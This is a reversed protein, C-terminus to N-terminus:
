RRTFIRYASPSEPQHWWRVQRDTQWEGDVRYNRLLFDKLEPWQDVRDFSYHQELCFQNTLVITQPRASEMADLLAGRYRKQEDASGQYAYCDYLYGTSAVLHLDLLTNICGGVTDLCQVSGQQVKRSVLDRGLANEFPATRTYSRITRAYMPPLAAGMLVILVCAVVAVWAEGALGQAILRAVLILGLVLFPYRQYPFGKGQMVFSLLGCATAFLLLKTEVDHVRLGFALLLALGFVAPVPAFAHGLLAGLTQHALRSHAADVSRLVAIFAEVAAYQHLWLLVLVGPLLLAGVSAAMMGARLKLRQPRLRHLLLPMAALPLLTPKITLTAGILLEFVLFGAARWKAPVRLLTTLALVVLAAMLLDREGGEVVGDRLHLLVFLLGGLLGCSRGRWGPEGLAASCVVVLLCLFGDYLRLGIAGVGFVRMALAESLYSGPLNIDIIQRYPARGAHLLLVVYRMLAADGVLPWHWAWYLAFGCSAVAIMLSIRLVTDNIRLRTM